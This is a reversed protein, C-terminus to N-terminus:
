SNGASESLAGAFNGAEGPLQEAEVLDGLFTNPNLRLSGTKKDKTVMVWGNPIGVYASRIRDLYYGKDLYESIRVIPALEINVNSM